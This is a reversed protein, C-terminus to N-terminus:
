STRADLSEVSKEREDRQNADRRLAVSAISKSVDVNDDCVSADSLGRGRAEEVKAGFVALRNYTKREQVKRM